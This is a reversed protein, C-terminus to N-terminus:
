RKKASQFTEKEQSYCVEHAATGCANIGPVWFLIHSVVENTQRDSGLLSGEAMLGSHIAALLVCPLDKPFGKAKTAEKIRGRGRGKRIVRGGMRVGTLAKLPLGEQDTNPYMWEFLMMFSTKANFAFAIGRLDRVLGVLTRQLLLCFYILISSFGFRYGSPPSKVLTYDFEEVM